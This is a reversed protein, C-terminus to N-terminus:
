IDEGSFERQSLYIGDIGGNNNNPLLVLGLGVQACSAVQNGELRPRWDKQPFWEIIFSIDRRSSIVTPVGSVLSPNFGAM